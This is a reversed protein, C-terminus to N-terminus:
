VCEVHKARNSAYNINKKTITKKKETFWLHLDIYFAGVMGYDQKSEATPAIFYKSPSGLTKHRDM